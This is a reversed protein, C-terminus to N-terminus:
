VPESGEGREVEDVEQYWQLRTGVAARLRWRRSKPAADVEDRIEAIRGQVTLPVDPPLGVCAELATAARDLNMRATYWFGWDERLVDVLRRREITDAGGGGLGHDALLVLIDLLDNQTIEHIQLKSLLLDVLPITTPDRELRRRLDVTHSMVLKDLFVDVKFRDDPSRYILRNVGWERSWRIIPDLAWGEEGFLAEIAAQQKAYAMLDIDRLPRRGLAEFRGAASPCRLLIGLSGTIRLTLNRESARRVLRLAEDRLAPVGSWGAADEPTMREALRM